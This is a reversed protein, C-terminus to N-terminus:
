CRKSTTNTLGPMGFVLLKTKLSKQVYSCKFKSFKVFTIKNQVFNVHEIFFFALLPMLDVREGTRTPVSFKQRFLHKAFANM